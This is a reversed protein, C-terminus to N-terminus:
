QNIISSGLLHKQVKLLDLIDVIGDKSVDMAKYQVGSLSISGLLQKQVRLLDLITIEGDGTTDGYIITELVKTKDGVTISVKYGTGISGTSVVKDNLDTIKISAMPNVKNIAQMITDANTLGYMYNDSVINNKLNNITEELTMDVASTRVININYVRSAGNAAKVTIPILQNDSTISIDGTGSVTAGKSATLAKAEVKINTVGASVNVTYSTTSGKFNVVKNGNVKLESLYNNPSADSPLSTSAPMNSYFPIIFIYPVDYMATSGQSDYYSNYSYLAESYPAEINQMYQNNYCLGTATKIMCIVDWKQLYGTDQGKGIYNTGIKSVGGVISNYESNWGNDKAYILGNLVVNTGSAGYNFFNYYGNYAPYSPYIGKVLASRTVGTEQLIRGAIYYPSIGYHNGAYMIVDSFLNNTGNDVYTNYMFSPKLIAEVGAKKHFAANYSLGEFMFVRKENLFNRPDLYYAITKSNAAYWRSGGGPYETYFSDTEYTYSNLHKLGDRTRNTDEILSKGLTAENTVAIEFDLKTDYPVFSANPYIRHLNILYPHYSEPFKTLVSEFSTDINDDILTVLSACVYVHDRDGYAYEIKYWSNGTCGTSGDNTDVTDVITVIIGDDLGSSTKNYGTGPGLRLVVGNGLTSAIIGQKVNEANTFPIFLSFFMIFVFLQVFIKKM